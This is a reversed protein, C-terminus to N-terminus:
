EGHTSEQEAEDEANDENGEGNQGVEGIASHGDGDGIGRKGVFALEDSQREIRANLFIHDACMHLGILEVKGGASADVNLAAGEAVAEM